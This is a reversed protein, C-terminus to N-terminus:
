QPGSTSNSLDAIARLPRLLVVPIERDTRSEYDQYPPYYAKMQAWLRDREPGEAVRWIAEFCNLGARFRLDSMDSLNLFWAPHFDQGGNSAIIMYEDGARDYILPTVRAKGSKRGITQLLLCTTKEGGGFQRGDIYHAAEPDNLYQQLHEEFWPKLSAMFEGADIM